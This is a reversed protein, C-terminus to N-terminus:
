MKPLQALLKGHADLVQAAAAKTAPDAGNKAESGCLATTGTLHERLVELAKAPQQAAPLARIAAMDADVVMGPLDHGAHISSDEVAGGDALAKRLAVLEGKHGDAAAKAIPTLAPDGGALILEFLQAASTDLSIMLQLYAIDTPNLVTVAPPAASRQQGAPPAPEHAPRAWLVVVAFSALLVIAVAGLRRWVDRGGAEDTTTEPQVPAKRPETRQKVNRRPKAVPTPEDATDTDKTEAAETTETIETTEATETTEQAAEADATVSDTTAPDATIPYATIPDATIPKDDTM